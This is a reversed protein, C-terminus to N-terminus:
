RFNQAYQSKKQCKPAGCAIYAAKDTSGVNVILASISPCNYSGANAAGHLAPKLVLRYEPSKGHAFAHISAAQQGVKAAAQEREQERDRKERERKRRQTYTCPKIHM